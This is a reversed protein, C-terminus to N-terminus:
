QEKFLHTNVFFLNYEQAEYLHYSDNLSLLLKIQTLMGTYNKNFIVSLINSSHDSKSALFDDVNVTQFKNQQIM